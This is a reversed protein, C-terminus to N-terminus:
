VGEVRLNASAAFFCPAKTMPMVSESREGSESYASTRNGMPREGLDVISEAGATKESTLVMTAPTDTM